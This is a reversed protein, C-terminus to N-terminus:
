IWLSIFTILLVTRVLHKVNAIHIALYFPLLRLPVLLLQSMYNEKGHVKPYLVNCQWMIDLVYVTTHLHLHVSIYRCSSLAIKQIRFYMLLFIIHALKEKHGVMFELCHVTVIVQCTACGLSYM